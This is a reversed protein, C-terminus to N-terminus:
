PEERPIELNNFDTDYSIIKSCGNLLATTYHILDFIKLKYKEARKLAEFVLNIDLDVIRLDLKLLTRVAKIANARNTEKEIILFAEILNFTNILGGSKILEQCKETYENGYFAYTLVNSDIFEM